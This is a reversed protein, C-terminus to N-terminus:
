DCLYKRPLAYRRRERTAPDLAGRVVREEAIRWVQEALAVWPEQTPHLVTAAFLNDVTLDLTSLVEAMRLVRDPRRAHRAEIRQWFRRVDADVDDGNLRASVTHRAWAWTREPAWTRAPSLKMGEEVWDTADRERWLARWAGAEARPLSEGEHSEAAEKGLSVPRERLWAVYHAVSSLRETGALHRMQYLEFAPIRYEVM